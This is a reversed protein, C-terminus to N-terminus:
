LKLFGYSYICGLHDGNKDTENITLESYWERNEKDYWRGDNMGELWIGNELEINKYDHRMKVSVASAIHRNGISSNEGNWWFSYYSVEEGEPLQDYSSYGASYEEVDLNLKDLIEECAANDEGIIIGVIENKTEIKMLM